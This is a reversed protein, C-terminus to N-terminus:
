QINNDNMTIPKSAIRICSQLIEVFSTFVRDVAVRRSIVHNLDTKIRIILCDTAAHKIGAIEIM